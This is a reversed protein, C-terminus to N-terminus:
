SLKKEEKEWKKYLLELKKSIEGYKRTLENVKDPHRYVEVDALKKTVREREEELLAIEAEIDAFNNLSFTNKRSKKISKKREESKERKKQQVIKTSKIEGKRKELFYSYNGWYLKVEDNRGFYLIRGVIKDLFYRDHSVALITGDYKGLAEELIGRSKLDLHNTPEDLILFNVKALILKGLLVRAQEGGSLDKVPVFVDKGSFLFGGLFSRLEEDKVKPYISWMEEMISNEPNLEALHQDYYGLKINRGIKVEGEDAKEKGIIIRLFTTKGTGNPGIIGLRDGRQLQFSLNKFLFLEQLSKGLSRVQLVENGGRLQSSFKIKIEEERQPRSIIKIKELMKRRSQAQKTKQGVINRRIFEEQRRIEKQQLRHRRGQRIIEEEKERLYHTYNGRYCRLKGREMEWIKGVVRDLFYRDHSVLLLAGQYNVLYNELWETAEVDLHNTPEDLLLLDPERLLLKAYALRSKEGGSLHEVQKEFDSKQFGFGSLVAKLRVECNYGDKKEIEEEVKGYEEMIQSLNDKERNMMEALSHMKERLLSIEYFVEMGEQYVTRKLILNAEQVLYGIKLNKRKEVGGEEPRIEGSIIELLTTKGVGNAGILGIKEGENLQFSSREIILKDGYSKSINKGRVLSM